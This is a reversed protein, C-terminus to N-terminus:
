WSLYFLPGSLLKQLLQWKREWEERARDRRMSGIWSRLLFLHGLILNNVMRPRMSGYSYLIMLTQMIKQPVKLFGMPLEEKMLMLLEIDRPM